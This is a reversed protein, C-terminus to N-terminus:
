MGGGHEIRALRERAEELSAMDADLQVQLLDRLKVLTQQQERLKKTTGKGGKLASWQGLKIGKAELEAFLEEHEKSM